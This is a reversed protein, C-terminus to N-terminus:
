NAKLKKLQNKNKNKVSWVGCEAFWTKAVNWLFWQHVIITDNVAAAGRPKVCSTRNM